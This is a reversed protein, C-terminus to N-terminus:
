GMMEVRNKLAENMRIFGQETDNRIFKLLLWAFVGKFNEGQKLTTSGDANPTLVFYHEGDFLGNIGMHGLWRFESNPEFALVTPKFTMPKNGLGLLVELNAGVKQEGSIEQIFPNWKPYAEFDALAAWVQNPAKKIVVETVIPEARMTACGVVAVLLSVIVSYKVTFNM